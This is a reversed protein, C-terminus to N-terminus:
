SDGGKAFGTALQRFLAAAVDGPQEGTADLLTANMSEVIPKKSAAIDAAVRKVWVDNLEELSAFEGAAARTALEASTASLRKSLDAGFAASADRPTAPTPAVIPDVPDVPPPGSDLCGATLITTAIAIVILISVAIADRAPNPKHQTM